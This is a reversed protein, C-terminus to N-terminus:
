RRLNGADTLALYKAQYTIMIEHGFKARVFINWDRAYALDGAARVLM